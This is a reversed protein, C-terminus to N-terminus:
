KRVWKEWVFNYDWELEHTKALERRIRRRRSYAHEHWEHFQILYTDVKDLLGTEIMREFLPFEAGEINVKMLQVNNLALENWISDVSRIKVRMKPVDSHDARDELMSSGLGKLTFDAELDEDGLGVPLPKFKPNKGAHILLREFPKPNPEFAYITPNYKEAITVSWDGIFAGVDIVISDQDINATHLIQNDEYLAGVFELMPRRYYHLELMTKMGPQLHRHKYRMFRTRPWLLAKKLQYFSLRSKSM